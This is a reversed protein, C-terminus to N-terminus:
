GWNQRYPPRLYRDAEPCNVAKMAAPDWDL